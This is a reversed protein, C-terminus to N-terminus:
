LTKVTRESLRRMALKCGVLRSLTWWLQANKMQVMVKEKQLAMQKESMLQVQQEHCARVEGLRRLMAEEEEREEEMNSVISATEAMEPIIGAKIDRVFEDIAYIRDCCDAIEDTYAEIEEQDEQLAINVDNLEVEIDQMRQVSAILEQVLLQNTNMRHTHALDPLNHFSSPAHRERVHESQFRDREKRERSITLKAPRDALGMIQQLQNLTAEDDLAKM